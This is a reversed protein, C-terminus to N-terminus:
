ELWNTESYKMERTIQQMQEDTLEGANRIVVFRNGYYKKEAFVDLIYFTIQAM